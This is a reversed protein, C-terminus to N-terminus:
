QLDDDCFPYRMAVTRNDEDLPGTATAGPVTPSAARLLGDPGVEGQWTAIRPPASGSGPTDHSWRVSRNEVVVTVYQTAVNCGAKVRGNYTGNGLTAVADAAPITAPLPTQAPVSAVSCRGRAAAIDRTA